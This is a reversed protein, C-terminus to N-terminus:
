TAWVATTGASSVTFANEGTANPAPDLRKKPTDNMAGHAGKWNWEENGQYGSHVDADAVLGM